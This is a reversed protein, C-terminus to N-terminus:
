PTAPTLARRAATLVHEATLDMLCRNSPDAACVRKGCGPHCDAGRLTTLNTDRIPRWLRELTPGFITVIPLDTTAALHTPGSENSVLLAAREFLALLDLVPLALYAAADPQHMHSRIQEGLDREAPTGIIVIRANAERALGDAVAAFREPPWRRYDKGASPHMVILPRDTDDHGFAEALTASIRRHSADSAPLRMPEPKDTRGVTRLLTAYRDYAHADEPPTLKHTYSWARRGDGLGIRTPSLTALCLTTSRVGSTADIVARYRRRMLRTFLRTLAGVNAQKRRRDDRQKPYAHVAGIGVMREALPAWREDVVLEIPQEFYENLAAAVSLALVTNGLHHDILIVLVPATDAAVIPAVTRADGDVPANASSIADRNM